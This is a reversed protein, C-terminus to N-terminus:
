NQPNKIKDLFYDRIIKGNESIEPHGQIAFIPKTEHKMWIVIGDKIEGIFNIPVKEFYYSHNYFLDFNTNEFEFKEYVKRNNKFKKYELTEDYVLCLIQLGLCIGLIPKNTEKLWKKETIIDTKNSIKIHGGSLIVYDYENVKEVSFDTHNIIDCQNFLESLKDIYQTNHNIILGKM